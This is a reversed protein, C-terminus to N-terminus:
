HTDKPSVEVWEEDDPEDGETLKCLRIGTVEDDISVQIFDTVPDISAGDEESFDPWPVDALAAKEADLKAKRAKERLEKHYEILAKIEKNNTVDSPSGKAFCYKISVNYKKLLLEVIASDGGECAYHLVTAGVADLEDTSAGEDLLHQIIALGARHKCALMLPTQGHPNKANIDEASGIELEWKITAIDREMCALHLSTTTHRRGSSTRRTISTGPEDDAGPSTATVSSASSSRRPYTSSFSKTSSHAAGHIATSSSLLLLISFSLLWRYIM